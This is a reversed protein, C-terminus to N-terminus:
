YDPQFHRRLKGIVSRHIQCIRSETLELVQGIEKLTLEDYYYLTIVRRENIPLNEIAKALRDEREKQLAREEPSPNSTDGVTARLNAGGTEPNDSAKADLSLIYAGHINTMLEFLDAEGIEMEEALECDTPRRGLEGTLRESARSM